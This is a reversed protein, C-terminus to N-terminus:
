ISFNEIGPRANRSQDPGLIQAHIPRNEIERIFRHVQARPVSRDPRNDGLHLSYAQSQPCVFAQAKERARAQNSDVAHKGRELIAVLGSKM